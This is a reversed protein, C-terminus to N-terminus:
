AKRRRRVSAIGLAGLSLLSSSLWGSNPGPAGDLACGSSGRSSSQVTDGVDGLGPAAPDGVNGENSSDGIAGSGNADGSGSLADGDGSASAGPFTSGNTAIGGSASLWDPADYDGLSAAREGVGLIFDRWPSVASYIAWTCDEGTRSAVGVVRGEADLAPGGSDGECVAQEGLFETDTLVGPAGCQEAGCVVQIDDIARRVGPAGEDLASGYGVATFSEGRETPENLRPEIPQIADSFQGNLILLAIDAGCLAGDDDPVEIERVPFLDAGRVTTSPSVWLADPSYPAPFRSSGCDVIDNEVPVVCHRATLVLNPAILTGTCLAESDPTITAIALVAIHERDTEGGVIPQQTQGLLESARAENTGPVGESAADDYSVTCASLGM